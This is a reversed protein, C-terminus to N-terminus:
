GDLGIRAEALKVANAAALQLTDAVIWLQLGAQVSGDARLRGVLVVDRGASARTNPGEADVDWLEVGPAKGLLTRAEAPDLAREMELCLAAADGSFTPVRVLSVAVGVEGFLRRVDRALESEARTRGDAEVDGVAPLCDFAVPRGFHPPEPLDQQNFLAITESSLAEIGERGAGSVSTLVTGVVRRLGAAARIPALVPAWALAASAPSALVPQRLAEPTTGADAVLLPVADQGALGGSLDICPVQAQLAVRVLDLSAPPPACVFVLDCGRIRQADPTVDFVDGRLEIAEGESRESGIPVLDSVPFRRSDLTALLEGGLTGTAGAVAVRLARRPSM